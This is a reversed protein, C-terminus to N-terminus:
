KFAKKFREFPSEQSKKSRIKEYLEKEDRSIKTPIEITIEVFQDGQAGRASKVGKGRL